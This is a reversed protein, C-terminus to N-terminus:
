DCLAERVANQWTAVGAPSLHLGDELMDTEAVPWPVVRVGLAAIVTDLKGGRIGVAVVKVGRLQNLIAAYNERFQQEPVSQQQDNTGLAIVGRSPKLVEILPGASVRWQGATYGGIGANFTPGCLELERQQEVISDGLVLTGGGPMQKAHQMIMWLRAQQLHRLPLRWRLAGLGVGISIGIALAAALVAIQRLDLGEKDRGM